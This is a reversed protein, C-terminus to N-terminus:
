NREYLKLRSDKTCVLHYSSSIVSEIAQSCSDTMQNYDWMLIYDIKHGTLKEFSQVNACLPPNSNFDGLIVVPNRNEKWILPFHPVGAEYNDLVLVSKMSGTYNFINSHMWNGSYNLPLLITNERIYNQCSMAQAIDDNLIKMRPFLYSMKFIMWVSITITIFLGTTKKVPVTSFLIILFLFFYLEFRFKIVGGSAAQDPVFFFFLLMLIIIIMWYSTKQYFPKTSEDPNIKENRNKIRIVLLILFLALIFVSHINEPYHQLTIIPSIYFFANIMESFTVPPANISLFPKNIFYFFLLTLSPLLALLIPLASRLLFILHSSNNKNKEKKLCFLWALFLMLLFIGLTLLHSLYLLVSFVTILIYKRNGRKEFVPLIFYISAFLIVISALFNYMGGFFFYSYVFPLVLLILAGSNKNVTLLTKRFFYPLLFIYLGLFIKESVFPTFFISLFALLLHGLINPEPFTKLLIFDSAPNSGKILEKMLFSNYVHAPGDHTLVCGLWFLPFLLLFVLLYFTWSSLPIQKLRMQISFEKKLFYQTM